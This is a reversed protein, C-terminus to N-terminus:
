SKACACQATRDCSKVAPTILVSESYDQGGHVVRHGVVDIEELSAIVQTPGHTLLSLLYSLTEARDDARDDARDCAAVTEKLQKGTSTHVTLRASKEQPLWDIQAEWIPEPPECPLGSGRADDLANDIAYLCSKKAVRVPM